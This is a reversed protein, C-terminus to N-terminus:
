FKKNNNERKKRELGVIYSLKKKVRREKRRKRWLFWVFGQLWSKGDFLIRPGFAFPIINMNKTNLVLAYEMRKTCDKLTISKESWDILLLVRVQFPFRVSNFTVPLSFSEKRVVWRKEM